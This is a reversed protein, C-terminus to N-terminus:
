PMFLRQKSSRQSRPNSDWELCSHRNTRKNQKKKVHIPLLRAVPQDRMWPTRGGIYLILFSFFAVSTWCLATCLYISLYISLYFRLKDIGFTTKSFPTYYCVRVMARAWCLLDQGIRRRVFFTSGTELNNHEKFVPCHV